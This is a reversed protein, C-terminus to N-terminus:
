LYQIGGQWSPMWAQMEKLQSISQFCFLTLIVVDSLLCVGCKHFMKRIVTKYAACAPLHVSSIGSIEINNQVTRTIKLDPFTPARVCSPTWSLTKGEEGLLKAGLLIECKGLSWGRLSSGRCRGPKGCISSDITARNSHVVQLNKWVVICHGLPGYFPGHPPFPPGDLSSAFDKALVISHFRLRSGLMDHCGSPGLNNDM